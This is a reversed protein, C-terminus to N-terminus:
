LLYGKDAILSSVDEIYVVILKDDFGLSDQVKSYCTDVLPLAETQPIITQNTM